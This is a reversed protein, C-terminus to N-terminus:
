KCVFYLTAVGQAHLVEYFYEIKSHINYRTDNDHVIIVSKVGDNKVSKMIKNLLIEFKRLNEVNVYMKYKNGRKVIGSNDVVQNCTTLSLDMIVHANLKAFLDCMPPRMYNKLLVIEM